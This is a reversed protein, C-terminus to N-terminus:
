SDSENSDKWRACYGYCAHLERIVALIQAASFLVVTAQAQEIVARGDTTTYIKTPLPHPQDDRM